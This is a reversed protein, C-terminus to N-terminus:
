DRSVPRRAAARGRTLVEPLDRISAGYAPLTFTWSVTGHATTATITAVAPGFEAAFARTTTASFPNLEILTSNSTSFTAAVIIGGTTKVGLSVESGVPFQTIADMCIATGPAASGPTGFDANADLGVMCQLTLAGSVTVTATASKTPDTASRASIAVTGEAVGTVVGGASVTAIAANSTSWTVAQSVGADGVVVATLQRTAGIDVTTPTPSVTLSTVRAVVHVTATGSKSPDAVSRATITATGTSVGTVVGTATVTVKAVDSSTWTVAQSVGADGSVTATIPLSGGIFLGQTVAPGLTVGTVRPAVVVTATTSKTSDQVSVATMTVQGASVGTVLGTGSITAVAPSASRWTVAGSVGPDGTVAAVLQVTGAVFITSSDPAITVTSVRPMITLSATAKRSTDATSTATVLVQGASLGAVLGSASVTAITPNASRWTVSTAVGSDGAVTASLQRTETVRIAVASPAVQLGTVRPIVALTATARRTTDAEAIATITTTGAAVGTVVGTANVTARSPDSSTWRVTTPTGPDTTLEAVLPITGTVPVSPGSPRIAITLVRGSVTVTASTQDNRGVLKATITTTGVSLATVSGTSTVSAVAPQSTSYELAPVTVGCNASAVTAPINISEGVRMQASLPNMTVGSITCAPGSSDKCALVALLALAIPRSPHM